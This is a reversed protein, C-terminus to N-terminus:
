KGICFQNFVADMVQDDYVEGLLSYIEQLAQHLDLAILDPSEDKVMLTLSNGLKKEAESLHNFHRANLSVVSEESPLDQLIRELLLGKLVDLGLSTKASVSLIPYGEFLKPDLQSVLDGKNLLVLTRDKGLRKLLNSDDESLPQSSDFVALHLDAVAMKEEARKQGIREIEDSSARLGATDTVDVQYGDVFFRGEVLDRTTGEISTVIAKEEGLLANLLSSKGVNPRGILVVQYGSKLIRGARHSKLLERILNRASETRARLEKMQAVEIDESSFDINAELHALVGTVLTKLERIQGSLRGELQRLSLAAAKRSQSQILDLVSEAQVLDIRGNSFARFTFEGREAPRCGTEVLLELCQNVLTPNGHLSIELTEEGTFSRGAMFYTILVEDVPNGTSPDTLKGYYVQHSNLSSPLFPCLPRVKFLAEPGSVRVVSIGAQGQASALACITDKDQSLLGTM